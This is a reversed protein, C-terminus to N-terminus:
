AKEKFSHEKLASLERLHEYVEGRHLMPEEGAGLAIWDNATKMPQNWMKEALDIREQLMLAQVQKKAKDIWHKLDDTEAENSGDRWCEIAISELIKDLQKTDDLPKVSKNLTTIADKIEQHSALPKGLIDVKKPKQEPWMDGNSM